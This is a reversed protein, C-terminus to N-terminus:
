QQWSTSKRKKDLKRAKGRNCEEAAGNGETRQLWVMGQKKKDKNGEEHRTKIFSDDARQPMNPDIVNCGFAQEIEGVLAM